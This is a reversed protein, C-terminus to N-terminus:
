AAGANGPNADLCYGTFGSSATEAPAALQCQVSPVVRDGKRIRNVAPGVEVVQGLNEHGLM